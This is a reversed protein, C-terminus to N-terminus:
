LARCAGRPAGGGARRRAAAMSVAAPPPGEALPTQQFVSLLHIVSKMKNVFRCRAPCPLSSCAPGAASPPSRPAPGRLGWLGTHAPPPQQGHAPRQLGKGWWPSQPVSSSGGPQQGPWAAPGWCRGWAALGAEAPAKRCSFAAKRGKQPFFDAGRYDSCAAVDPGPEGRGAGAPPAAGRHQGHSPLPEGSGPPAPLRSAGPVARGGAAERPCCSVQAFGPLVSSAPARCVRPGRCATRQASGGAGGPGAGVTAGPSSDGTVTPV